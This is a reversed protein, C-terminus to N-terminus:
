AGVDAGLAAALTAVVSEQAGSAVAAVRLNAHLLDVAASAPSVPDVGHLDLQEALEALMLLQQREAEVELTKIATYAGPHPAAHKWARRRRRLPVVVDERWAECHDAARRAYRENLVRGTSALWAAFLLLNVDLGHGDQAALCAAAV